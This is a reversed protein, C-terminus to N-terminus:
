IAPLYGGKNVSIYFFIIIVALIFLDKAKNIKNIKILQESAGRIKGVGVFRM